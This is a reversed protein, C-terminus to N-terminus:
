KTTGDRLGRDILIDELRGVRRGQETMINQLMLVSGDMQAQHIVAAEIKKDQEQMHAIISQAQWVLLGVMATCLVMCARTLATMVDSNAVRMFRGEDARHTPQQKKPM